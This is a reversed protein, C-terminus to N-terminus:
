KEAIIILHVQVEEGKPYEKRLCHTIEYKNKQLINELYASEYYYVYAKDGTSGTEYGSQSYNGEIISLYLLGGKNLLTYTDKIFKVVDERSLYPLCFGSVIADYRGMLQQIDRADLIKTQVKPNNVKTLELMNPAIDTALIQASPIKFFLYKTINGPGCGIELISPQELKIQECFVDYSDNYLDLDMFKDQYLDAIKNWTQFTTKYKEEM